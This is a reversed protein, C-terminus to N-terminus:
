INTKLFIEIKLKLWFLVCHKLFSSPFLIIIDYKYHQIPKYERNSNIELPVGNIELDHSYIQTQWYLNISTWWVYLKCSCHTPYVGHICWIIANSVFVQISWLLKKELYCTSLIVQLLLPRLSITYWRPISFRKM